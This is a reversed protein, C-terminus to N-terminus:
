YLEYFFFFGAYLFWSFLKKFVDYKNYWIEADIKEDSLMVNSGLKQQTRKFGQLLSEPSSYDGSSKSIKKKLEDEPIIEEVGRSILSWQDELTPFSM